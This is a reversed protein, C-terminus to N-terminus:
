LSLKKFAKSADVKKSLADKLLQPLPQKTAKKKILVFVRGNKQNEIAEHIYELVFSENIDEVSKFEWYRMAQKKGEQVNELIKKENRLFVGNFFWIGFHNKFKCISLVNKGKLAYTPFTWKYTEKLDTKLALDRQQDIAKKYHHEEAYYREVKELIDM